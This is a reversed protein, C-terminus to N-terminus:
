TGCYFQFLTEKKYIIQLIQALKDSFVRKILLILFARIGDKWTLM